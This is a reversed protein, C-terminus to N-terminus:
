APSREKPEASPAGVEDALGFHEQYPRFRERLEAIDLGLEGVHHEHGGHRGRPKAALHERVRREHESTWALGFHDYITAVTGPQDAMFEDFRVHVVLAHDAAARRDEALMRDCRRAMVDAQERAIAAFDVSTAHAWRLTATLSTLSSLMALPDRHCVVLRAGPYTERLVTVHDAHSPWKFLWPVPEFDHQLVQLVRRHWAYASRLDDAELYERFSPVGYHAGPLDSRMDVGMASGDERPVRAGQEHMGDFAPAMAASLRVDRDALPIRADDDYTAARPPPAPAWYEWAMPARFGPDCALLQHMISTGARPSGAVAIPPAIAEDTITPDDTCAAVIRLRNELYRLLVERARWRGVLHLDTERELSEALVALPEEHSDDGWDDTGARLAAEALLDAPEFRRAGAEYLPGGEGALAHAVWPPRPGPDWPM